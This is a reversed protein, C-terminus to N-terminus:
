TLSWKGTIARKLVKPGSSSQRFYAGLTRNRYVLRYTSGARSKISGGKKM